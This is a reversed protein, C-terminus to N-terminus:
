YYKFRNKETSLDNLLRKISKKSSFLSDILRNKVICKAVYSSLCKKIHGKDKLFVLMMM